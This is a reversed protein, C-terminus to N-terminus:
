RGDALDIHLMVEIRDVFGDFLGPRKPPLGNPTPTGFCGVIATMGIIRPRPATPWCCTTPEPEVHYLTFEQAHDDWLITRHNVLFEAPVGIARARDLRSVRVRVISSGTM